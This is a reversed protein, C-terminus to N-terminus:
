LKCTGQQQQNTLAEFVQAFWVELIVDIHLSFFNQLRHEAIKVSWSKAVIM